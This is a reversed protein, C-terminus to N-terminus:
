ANSLRKRFKNKKLSPQQAAFLIFILGLNTAVEFCRKEDFGLFLLRHFKNCLLDLGQLIECYIVFLEFAEQPMHLIAKINNANLQPIPCLWEVIDIKRIILIFFYNVM